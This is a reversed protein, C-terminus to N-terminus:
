PSVQEPLQLLEKAKQSLTLQLRWEGGRLEFGELMLIKRPLWRAAASTELHAGLAAWRGGPLHAILRLLEDLSPAEPLVETTLAAIALPLRDKPIFLVGEASILARGSITGETQVADLLVFARAPSILGSLWVGRLLQLTSVLQKPSSSWLPLKENSLHAWVVDNEITLQQISRPPLERSLKPWREPFYLRDALLVWPRRYKTGWIRWALGNLIVAPVALQWWGSLLAPAIPLCSILLPGLWPRAPSTMLRIEATAPAIGRRRLLDLMTVIGARLSPSHRHGLAALRENAAVHAAQKRQDLALTLARAQQHRAIKEIAEDIRPLQVVCEQMTTIDDPSSDVRALVYMLSDLLPLADELLEITGEMRVRLDEDLGSSEHPRFSESM